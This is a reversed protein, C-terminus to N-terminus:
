GYNNLWGSLVVLMWIIGANNEKMNQHNNWIEVIKKKEILGYLRQNKLMSYSFDKLDGRLWKELPIGFGKKPRSSIDPFYKEALQRLLIKTRFLSVHKKRTSFAFDIIENDLYPVRVELSNYMSARDVKVFYKEPLSTYFDIIQAKRTVELRNISPLIKRILKLNPKQYVLNKGLFFVKLWFLERELVDKKAGLIFNAYVEKKDYGKWKYPNPILDILPITANLISQPLFKLYESLIQGQYNPYGAFLEDGGDGSLVVKVYKRALKCVKYTPLLSADALPEDLMPFIEKFIKIVDEAKFIESYYDIGLKKAVYSAYKSEDYDREEFGISFSKLKKIKSIYYSILSSDIGGSLLVGVPVDAHLERAVSNEILKELDKGNEKEIAKEIQFYKKIEMGSKSFSVIHGQLLKKTDKFMSNNGPLYGFYCYLSLSDLDLNLNLNKVVKFYKLITKVESGFILENGLRCYYLPKIGARDRALLLRKEREDWIAFAFMGNLKKVFNEGWEEYGHVLVETDSQTKFRHNRKILDTRLERYNYIEGNFIVVVSGDENKIPQDGTKLDIISLRRVGLAVTKNKNLFVGSSDPGRYAIEDIMERITNPHVESSLDVYGAIGCM